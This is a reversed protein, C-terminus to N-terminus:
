ALSALSCGLHLHMYIDFITLNNHCFLCFFKFIFARSLFPRFIFVIRLNVPLINKQLLFYISPTEIWYDFINHFRRGESLLCINFNWPFPSISLSNLLATFVCIIARLLSFLLTLLQLGKPYMKYFHDANILM